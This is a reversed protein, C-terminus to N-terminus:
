SASGPADTREPFEFGIKGGDDLVLWAAFPRGRKSIFGTLLESRGDKILKGLEEPSLDRQLISRGVRFKCPKTDAQSKECLYHQATAFVRGGCRPCAAVPELGTFDVKPSPESAAKTKAASGTARPRRPEFEFGVKGDESLALFAKFPRGRKSIFKDLLDTKRTELLKTMQAREIPQQLIIRGCRFDCANKDGVAQECVYSKGTEFVRHGCKPCTGVPEPNVFDDNRGTDSGDAGNRDFDFEAKLEDTLIIAASFPRGTKSRFGTLPGV